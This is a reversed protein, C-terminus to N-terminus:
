PLKRMLTQIDRRTFVIKLRFQNGPAPSAIFCRKLVYDLMETDTIPKEKPDPTM